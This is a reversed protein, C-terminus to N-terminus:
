VQTRTSSIGSFLPTVKPLNGKQAETEKHMFHPNYLFRSCSITAIILPFLIYFASFESYQICYTIFLICDSKINSFPTQLRMEVQRPWAAMM